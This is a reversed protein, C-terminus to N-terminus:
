YWWELFGALGLGLGLGGFLSWLLTATSIHLCIDM